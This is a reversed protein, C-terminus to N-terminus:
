PAPASGEGLYGLARLREADDLRVAGPVIPGHRETFRAARDAQRALLEDLALILDPDSESLPSLEQPDVVLDFARGTQEEESRILVRQDATTVAYQKPADPAWVFRLLSSLISRPEVPEGRFGALLSAGDSEELAPLGFGELLTPAVDALSVPTTVKGPTGGESDFFVLPVQIQSQYLGFGHSPLGHDGWSEGHDSTVVLWFPRGRQELAEVLNGLHRDADRIAADYASHGARQQQFRPLKWEHVELTHVYAFFPRDREEDAWQFLAEHLQDASPSTELRTRGRWFRPPYAADFGRELASLTSGLPSASFSGTRWGAQQFREQLLPVSAPTRDTYSTAGVRHTPPLIGSMLTVIAPKTWPSCSQARQFWVGERALRDINPSVGSASSGGAGLHDARLTDILYVIVDPTSIAADSAVIVPSGFLGVGREEVGLRLIVSEGAWPTLDARMPTWPTDADAASAPATSLRVVGGDHVIEVIRAGTGSTAAGSWRLEPSGDPLRLPLEVQAGGRVVWAPRLVDRHDAIRYAAPAEAPLLRRPEIAVSVIAAHGVRAGRLLIELKELRGGRSADGFSGHLAEYVDISVDVPAAEALGPELALELRRLVRHERELQPGQVYPIVALGTAGGPRVRLRLLGAESLGGAPLPPSAFTVGGPGATVKWTRLADAEIRLLPEERVAGAVGSIRADHATLHIPPKSPPSGLLGAPKPGCSIGAALAFGSALGVIRAPNRM